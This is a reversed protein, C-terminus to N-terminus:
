RRRNSKSKTTKRKKHRRTKSGGKPIENIPHMGKFVLIENLLAMTKDAAAKAIDDSEKYNTNGNYHPAHLKNLDSIYEIIMSIQSAQGKQLYLLRTLANRLREIRSEIAGGPESLDTTKATLQNIKIQLPATPPVASPSAVSRVRNINRRPSVLSAVAPPTGGIPSEDPTWIPSSPHSRNEVSDM